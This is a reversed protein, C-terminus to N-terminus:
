KMAGEESLWVEGAFLAGAEGDFRLVLRLLGEVDVSVRGFFGLGSDFEKVAVSSALAGARSGGMVAAFAFTLSLESM